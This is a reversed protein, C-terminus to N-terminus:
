GSSTASHSQIAGGGLRPRGGGADLLGVGPRLLRERGARKGIRLGQAARNDAGPGVVGARVHEQTVHEASGSADGLRQSRVITGALDIRAMRGRERARRDDSETLAEARGRFGRRLRGSAVAHLHRRQAGVAPEAVLEELVCEDLEVGLPM